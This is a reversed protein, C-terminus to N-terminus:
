DWHKWTIKTEEEKRGENAKLEIYNIKSINGNEKNEMTSGIWLSLNYYSHEHRFMKAFSKLAKLLRISQHKSSFGCASEFIGKLGISMEKIWVM